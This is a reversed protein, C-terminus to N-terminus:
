HAEESHDEESHDAEAHEETAEETAEEGEPAEVEETEAVAEEAPEEATEEMDEELGGMMEEVMAAADAEAKAKAEKQNKVAVFQDGSNPSEDWGIIDVPSGPIVNKLTKNTHVFRSKVRCFAGGAYLFDGQKLTGRTVVVTAVNGRGVEM